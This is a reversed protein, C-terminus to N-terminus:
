AEERIINLASLLSETVWDAAVLPAPRGRGGILATRCGAALGAEVDTLQDGILYSRKLDVDLDQAAKLLLGPKPKRCECHVRLTAVRAQPHHLCYYIADLRAGEQGLELLMKQNLSDLVEASCKGKAVGPQNSVVVALFGLRNILAVAQAAGPMLRFEEVSYPSDWKGEEGNWLAANIVGDRDLFVVRRM